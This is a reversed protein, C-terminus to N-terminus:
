ENQAGPRPGGVDRYKKRATRVRATEKEIQAALAAYDVDEAKIKQSMLDQARQRAAEARDVSIDEAKEATDALIAVHDEQVELVGGSVAVYQEGAASRVTIVGPKVIGVLPRHQPLITLEGMETPLIVENAEVSFVTKEPTTISLKLPM